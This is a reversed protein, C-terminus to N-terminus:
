FIQGAGSNKFGTVRSAPAATSDRIVLQSSMLRSGRRVKHQQLQALLLQTAERGIEYRPQAVTTLAPFCHNAQEIDDFGILSLDRPVDLGMKRAQTLAGLAIIDSHVFSPPPPTPHSMLQTLGRAGADYSFDGRVIYQNDVTLGCRRLAQIYGQLRYESLPIQDPGAICAIRRHGLQHLYSVAEFAATLNDIHVTPMDLEPAFENAMVMPPLHRREEKGVDFPLPSGLLLIGDIQRATILDLFTREGHRQYACDGILVLYGRQAATDEIGRLMKGFFPDSIDPVLALITRSEHRKLNRSLHQASYGVAQAAQEVKRRTLASVKDPSTLARSVTATSVGAKDAVDKMTAPSAFKKPEM